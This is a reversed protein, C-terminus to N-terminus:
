REFGMEPQQVSRSPTVTPKVIFKNESNTRSVSSSVVIGVLATPQGLIKNPTRQAKPLLLVFIQPFKKKCQEEVCKVM